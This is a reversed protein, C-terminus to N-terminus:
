STVGAKGRMSRNASRTVSMQQWLVEAIMVVLLLWLLPRWIETGFRQRQTASVLSAADEYRTAQLRDSCEAMLEPAVGRLVSEAAPVDIVRVIAPSPDGISTGESTGAARLRYAGVRSTDSYVLPDGAPVLISQPKGSPPTVTWTRQERDAAVVIVSGPPNSGGRDSGVMELVLQQIMPLYVPRLPLNSWDTDCPVAFQVVRGRRTAISEDEADDLSTDDSPKAAGSKRGAATVALPHGTETRLLVSVSEGDIELARRRSVEVADFLSDDATGLSKWAELRAGPPEIRFPSEEAVVIEHPKAPLWDCARWAEADVLAGDFFLVHGGTELYAAVPDRDNGENQSADNQSLNDSARRREGASGPPIAVNAFVVLDPSSSSDFTNDAAAIVRRMERLFEKSSMVKTSVLDLERPEPANDPQGDDSQRSNLRDTQSRRAGETARFAFPSLAVKLFDTESQLPESSPEGDVLWVRIPRMVEIAWERRNDAAIADTHELTFGVSVGGPQNFSTQWNLRLTGRPELSVTRTEVVRGDVMWSGRLGPVPLDSDNRLTATIPVPRDVLVAPVDTQLSEVVVNALSGGTNDGEEASVDLWDVQPRPDFQALREGISQMAGLLTASSGLESSLGSPLSSSEGATGSRFVNEQFDSVIVIRKYPHSAVRCAATASQLMAAMNVAAGEFRIDRIKSRADVTSGTSVPASLESGAIVIVEDRTSMSDLLENVGATARGDRSGASMSRSDDIMVILSVPQKGAMSQVSSILPRAMALALLVPIACRLLLLIWEHWQMRRRNAQVVDRLLFMAGWDLSRYRSRFLLHIVLPVLFAAAGLAMLSNGFSM